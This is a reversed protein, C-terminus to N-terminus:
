IPILSVVQYKKEIDFEREVAEKDFMGIWCAGLGLNVATLTVHDVAIAANFKLYALAAAESMSSRKKILESFDGEELQVDIFAGAESLESYRMERKLLVETDVFCILVAPAESVFKLPTCKRLKERAERSKIVMFRSPQLNSGSPALRAADLMEKIYEDPVPDSKFKRISRRTSIVDKFEM